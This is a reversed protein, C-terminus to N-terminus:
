ASNDVVIEAGNTARCVYLAPTLGTKTRYSNFVNETFSDIVDDRILAIACGGFGGGTMRAGFCGSQKLAIEVMIDLERRSIEFDDRMSVHSEMMLEGMKASNGSNMAEFAELTRANETIVHRARRYTIPNIQNEKQELQTLNIDRLAKVGFYNAASQCQSRRENYASDVLERRTASDMVVIISGPPLSVMKIELSRCDLLMAHDKKGAASIMQDMIGTKQGIWQNETLQGLKAMEAANWEENNLAKYARCTAMELAASSSLGGGIPVDGGIVGEWGYLMHGETQLAWTIGKIYEAWGSKTNRLEELNFEIMQNFDISHVMVNRDLRPKLAIWVARDITMPLVFGDNYDTHEGIINARGPARVVFTPSTEFIGQFIQIVKDQLM